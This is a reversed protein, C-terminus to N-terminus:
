DPLRLRRAEAYARSRDRILQDRPIQVGPPLNTPDFAPEPVPAITRVTQITIEGLRTAGAGRWTATPDHLRDEDHPHMADLHFSAPVNSRLDEALYNPSLEHATEPDLRRVAAAPTVSLRVWSSRARGTLGYTHVAFYRQGLYSAAAGAQAASLAALSEPHSKLFDDMAAPDPAAGDTPALARLFDILDSGTRVFFVPLTFMMLDMVETDEGIRLVFGQDGTDADHSDERGRNGSFRGVIPRRRGDFVMAGSLEAAEPTAQFTGEVWSGKKHLVRHEPDSNLIRAM